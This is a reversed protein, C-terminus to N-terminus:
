MLLNAFTKSKTEFLIIWVFIMINYSFFLFRNRWLNFTAIMKMCIVHSTQNEDFWKFKRSKTVWKMSSAFTERVKNNFKFFIWFTWLSAFMVIMIKCVIRFKSNRLLNFYKTMFLASKLSVIIFIIACFKQFLSKKLYSKTSCRNRQKFWMM